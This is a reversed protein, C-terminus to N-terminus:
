SNFGALSIDIRGTRQVGAAVGSLAGNRAPGRRFIPWAELAGAKFTGTGSGDKAGNLPRRADPMAEQGARSSLRLFHRQAHTRRM